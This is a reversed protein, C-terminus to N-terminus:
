LNRRFPLVPIEPLHNICLIGGLFLLTMDSGKYMMLVSAGMGARAANGVHRSTGGDKANSTLPETLRASSGSSDNLGGELLPLDDCNQLTM